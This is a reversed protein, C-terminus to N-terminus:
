QAVFLETVWLRNRRDREIGIGVSTFPGLVNARHLPSAMMLRHMEDVDGATGVNEGVRIWEVRLRYMERKSRHFLDQRRALRAAHERADADLAPSPALAPLGHAVRSDNILSRLRGADDLLDAGQGAVAAAGAVCALMAAVAVLARVRGPAAGHARPPRMPQM